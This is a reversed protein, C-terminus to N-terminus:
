SASYTVVRGTPEVLILIVHDDKQLMEPLKMTSVSALILKCM